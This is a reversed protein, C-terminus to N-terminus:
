GCHRIKIRLKLLQNRKKDGRERKDYETSVSDGVSGRDSWVFGSWSSCEVSAQVSTQAEKLTTIGWTQLYVKIHEESLYVIRSEEHCGIYYKSICDQKRQTYGRFVFLSFM